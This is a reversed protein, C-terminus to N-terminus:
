GNLVTTFWHIHDVNTMLVMFFETKGQPWAIVTSEEAYEAGLEHVLDRLQDKDRVINDEQLEPIAFLHGHKSISDQNICEVWHCHAAILVFTPIGPINDVKLGSDSDLIGLRNWLM